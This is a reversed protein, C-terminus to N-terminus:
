ILRKPWVVQGTYVVNGEPTQYIRLDSASLSEAEERDLLARLRLLLASGVAKANEHMLSELATYAAAVELRQPSSLGEPGFIVDM